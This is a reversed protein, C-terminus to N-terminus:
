HLEKLLKEIVQPYYEYEMKHIKQALSEANDSPEVAIKKQLIIGGEDYAENVYHISIGSFPEGAAIVAQHVKDGYMGKGGYAPLLAPHINIIRRSFKRILNEPILWLFGALVILDIHMAAFLQSLHNTKYLIHRDIIVVPIKNRQAHNIAGAGTKNSILLSVEVDDHEAFCAAINRFNTGSGSAFIAIRKMIAAFTSFNVVAYEEFKASSWLCVAASKM